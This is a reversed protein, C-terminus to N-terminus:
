RQFGLKLSITNVKGEVAVLRKEIANAVENIAATDDRELEKEKILTIIEKILPKDEKKAHRLEGALQIIMQYKDM